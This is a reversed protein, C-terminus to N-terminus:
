LPQFLPKPLLYHYFMAQAEAPYKCRIHSCCLSPCILPEYVLPMGIRANPSINLFPIVSPLNMVLVVFFITALVPLFRRGEKKGLIEEAINIRVFDLLIEGVNQLGTPVVKPNRMALLFFIALIAAMLLRVFMLRDITFWGNAVDAFWVAHPFFEHDLSPAHFEGKFSLTTVSLTRERTRATIETLFNRHSPRRYVRQM